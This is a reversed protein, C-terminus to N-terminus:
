SAKYLIKGGHRIEMIQEAPINEPRGYKSCPVKERDAASVHWGDIYSHHILSKIATAEIKIEAETALTVRVTKQEGISDHMKKIRHEIRNSDAKIAEYEKITGAYEIWKCYITEPKDCMYKLATKEIIGEPDSIYNIIEANSMGYHNLSDSYFMTLEPKMDNYFYKRAEETWTREKYRNINDREYGTVNAAVHAASELNPVLELLRRNVDKMFKACIDKNLSKSYFNGGHIFGFYGFDEGPQLSDGRSSCKFVLKTDANYQATIYTNCFDRGYSESVKSVQAGNRLNELDEPTFATNSNEAYGAGEPKEEPETEPEEKPEEEQIQGPKEEPKPEEAKRSSKIVKKNIYAAALDSFNDVNVEKVEEKIEEKNEQMEEEKGAEEKEPETTEEPAPKNVKKVVKKVEYPTKVEELDCFALSGKEFWKIFKDADYIIWVNGRAAAGRREKQYGKGLRYAVYAQKGDTWTFDAHIRYVYGKEHGYNFGTKVIFCQGDKIEGPKEVPKLETKYKTETVEEYTYFETSNGVMGGCTTNFRNVLENFKELLSYKEKVDEYNREAIKRRGEETDAGNYYFSHLNIYNVEDEIWQERSKNNYEQWEKLAREESIDPVSSFKLLGTGKDIIIGDKEIHWNCRPPNAMHGPYFVTYEERGEEVKSKILEIKAKATEEEQASAGRDQTMQQLKQIKELDAMSLNGNNYRTRTETKDERSWSQDVVLKYGNKEAIGDWYAPDYYDTMSDSNDAHYGYVTWGDLKFLRHAIKVKVDRYQYYTSM